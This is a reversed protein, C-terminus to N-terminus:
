SISYLYFNFWINKMNQSIDRDRTNKFRLTQLFLSGIQMKTSLFFFMNKDFLIVCSFVSFHHAAGTQISLPIFIHIKIKEHHFRLYIFNM